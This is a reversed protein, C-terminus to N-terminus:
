LFDFAKNRLSIFILLALDKFSKVEVIFGFEEVEFIQCLMRQRVPLRTGREIFHMLVGAPGIDEASSNPLKKALEQDLWDFSLLKEVVKLSKFVM